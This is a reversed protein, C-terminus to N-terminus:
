WVRPQSRKKGISLKLFALTRAALQHATDTAAAFLDEGGCDGETVVGIYGKHVGSAGNFTFTLISQAELEEARSPDVVIAGNHISVCAATPACKMSVGADLLALTCANIAAATVSGDDCLVHVTVSIAKRPHLATLVCEMVIERLDRTAVADIGESVTTSHLAANVSRRYVVQVDAREALQRSVVCEMPGYVAVLVQTGGIDVRASGDARHLVGQTVSIARMEVLSRGDRRGAQAGTEMGTMADVGSGKGQFQM